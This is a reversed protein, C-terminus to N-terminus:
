NNKLKVIQKKDEKNKKKTTTKSEKTGSNIGDSQMDVDYNSDLLYSYNEMWVVEQNTNFAMANVQPMIRQNDYSFVFVNSPDKQFDRLLKRALEVLELESDSSDNDEPLLSLQKQLPEINDLEQNFLNLVKVYYTKNDKKFQERLTKDKLFLYLQSSSPNHLAIIQCGRKILVPVLNHKKAIPLLGNYRNDLEVWGKSNYTGEGNENQIAQKVVRQVDLDKSVLNEAIEKIVNEPLDIM